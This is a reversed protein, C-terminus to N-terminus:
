DRVKRIWVNECYQEKKGDKEIGKHSFILTLKGDQVVKILGFRCNIWRLSVVPM